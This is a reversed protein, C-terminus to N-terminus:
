SEIDSLILGLLKKMSIQYEPHKELAKYFDKAEKSIETSDVGFLENPTIELVECLLPLKDIAPSGGNMWKNISAPVVDMKEALEVQTMKKEEKITKNLIATIRESLTQNQM